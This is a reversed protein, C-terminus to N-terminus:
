SFAGRELEMNRKAFKSPPPELNSLKDLVTEGLTFHTYGLMPVNM